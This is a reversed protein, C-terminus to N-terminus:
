DSHTDTSYCMVDPSQCMVDPGDTLDSYVTFTLLNRLVFVPVVLVSDILSILFQDSGSM